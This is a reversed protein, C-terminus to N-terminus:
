FDDSIKCNPLARRLRDVGGATLRRNFLLELSKLHSLRELRALGADTIESGIIRLDALQNLGALRDLGADTVRVSHLGLSQLQKLEGLYLVERDGVDGGCLYVGKVQELRRLSRMAADMDKGGYLTVVEPSDFFDPGLLRWLWDPISSGRYTVNGGLNKFEAVADHQRKADRMQAAYWGSPLAIAVALMLLSRVGFQFRRGFFMSVLLCPFLAIIVAIAMVVTFGKYNNFPFWHLHESLRLLIQVLVLAAVIRDPTICTMRRQALRATACAVSASPIRKSDM